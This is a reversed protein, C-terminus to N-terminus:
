FEFVNPYRTDAKLNLYREDAGVSAHVLIDWRGPKPLAVEKFIYTGDQVKELELTMDHEHTNPRTLRIQMQASEVAKGAKDTLRFKIAASAGALGETVYELNYAKDFRLNATIIKNADNDYTHYDQLNLDSMQVPNQIAISVTWYSLGVVGLISGVIIWPWKRGGKYAKDM